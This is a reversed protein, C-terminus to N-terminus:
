PSRFTGFIAAAVMGLSGVTWLLGQLHESRLESSGPGDIWARAWELRADQTFTGAVTMGEVRRLHARLMRDAPVDELWGTIYRGSLEKAPRRYNATIVFGPAPGEDGASPPLLSTFYLNAAGDRSEFLTAFTKEQAHAFDLCLTAPGFHPRESHSGISVFGLAELEAAPKALAEPIKVRGPADEADIRVSRPKVFLVARWFALRFIFASLALVGVFLILLRSSM